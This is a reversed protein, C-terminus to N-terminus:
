YSVGQERSCKLQRSKKSNIIGYGGYLLAVGLVAIISIIVFLEPVDTVNLVVVALLTGLCGAASQVAALIGQAKIHDNRDLKERIFTVFGSYYLAVLSEILQGMYIVIISPALSTVVVRLSCATLAICVVGEIRFKNKLKFFYLPVFIEAIALLFQAIGLESTGGGVAEIKNILYTMNIGHAIFIFVSAFLVLTFEPYGKIIDIIAHGTEDEKCTKVRISQSSNDPDELLVTLIGLLLLAAIQIVLLTNGQGNFDIMNGLGLAAFAWTASGVTRAVTYNLKKGAVVYQNSMADILASSCTLTGGYVVFVAIAVTFGIEFLLHVLTAAVGILCLILVIFRIPITKSHRQAFSAILPQFIMSSVSRVAILISIQGTDFGRERLLPILFVSLIASLFWYVALVLTYHINLKM